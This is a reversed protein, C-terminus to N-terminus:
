SVLTQSLPKRKSVAALTGLGVLGILMLNITSPEPAPVSGYESVGLVDRENPNGLNDVWYTTLEPNYFSYDGAQFNTYPGFLSPTAEMTFTLSELSSGAPLTQDLTVASFGAYPGTTFRFYEMFTSTLSTTYGCGNLDTLTVTDYLATADPPAVVPTTVLNFDPSCEATGAEALPASTMGILLILPSLWLMRRM